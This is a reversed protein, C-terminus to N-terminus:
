SEHYLFFWHQWSLKPRFFNLHRFSLENFKPSQHLVYISTNEITLGKFAVSSKAQTVSARFPLRISLSDCDANWHGNVLNENWDRSVPKKECSWWPVHVHVGLRKLLAKPEQLSQASQQCSGLSFTAVMLHVWVKTTFRWRFRKFVSYLTWADWFRRILDGAKESTPYFNDQPWLIEHHSTCLLLVRLKRAKLLFGRVIITCFATVWFHVKKLSSKNRYKWNLWGALSRTRRFKVM